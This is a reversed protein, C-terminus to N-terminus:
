ARGLFEIIARDREANPQFVISYHDTGPLEKIEAQALLSAMRQAADM